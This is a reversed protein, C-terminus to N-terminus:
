GGIKVDLRHSRMRTAIREVHKPEPPDIAELAYTQGLRRYKEAGVHHYPLLHVPYPVDLSTIFEITADINKEDDNIGPILPLRIWVETGTHSLSRLNELILGNSVGVHRRHFEDDMHKIDFLFLDTLEAIELLLKEQVFGSTDVARHYGRMQCAELCARLFEASLIPEGGSFTVGGGSEEYFIRDKDLEHLIGDVNYTAGIM